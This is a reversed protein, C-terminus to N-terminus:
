PKFWRLYVALANAGMLLIIIVGLILKNTAVRRAMGTLIVRSRKVNDDVADLRSNAALLQQRQTSLDGLIGAGIQESQEAVRHTNQLRDTTSNLRETGSLLNQRQDLYQIQTDNTAGAFLDERNQANSSQTMAKSLEKKFRVIDAQYQKIKPSVRAKLAPNNNADNEMQQLLQEAEELEREFERVAVKKREGAFNPLQKIKRSIINTINVFEREYEDFNDM